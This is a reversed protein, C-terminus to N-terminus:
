GYASLKLSGTTVSLLSILVNFFRFSSLVKTKPYIKQWHAMQVISSANKSSLCSNM